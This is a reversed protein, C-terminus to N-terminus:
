ALISTNWSVSKELITEKSLKFVKQEDEAKQRKCDVGVRYSVCTHVRSLGMSAADVWICRLVKHSNRWM